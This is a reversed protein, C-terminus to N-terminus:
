DDDNGRLVHFITSNPDEMNWFEVPGKSAVIGEMMRAGEPTGPLRCSVVLVGEDGDSYRIKLHVLGARSEQPRGICDTVTAPLGGAALQFDFFDTVHYTGAGGGAGSTGPTITWTGGGTVASNAKKADRFTGSGTMSVRSGDRAKAHAKANSQDGCGLAVHIDWRYRRGGDDDASAVGPSSVAVAAGLVAATKLIKRRTISHERM